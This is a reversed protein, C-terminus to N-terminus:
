NDYRKFMQETNHKHRCQTTTVHTSM